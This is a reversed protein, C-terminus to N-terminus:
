RPTVMRKVTVITSAAIMFLVVTELRAAVHFSVGTRCSESARPRFTVVAGVATMPLWNCVLFIVTVWATKTSQKGPFQPTLPSQM